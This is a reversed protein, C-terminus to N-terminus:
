KKSIYDNVKFVFKNFLIDLPNFYKTLTEQHEIKFKEKDSSIGGGQYCSVVTGIYKIVLNYEFIGRILWDFDAAIKYKENFFGVKRFCDRKIFMSQHCINDYMFFPKGVNSQHKIKKENVLFVDGYVIDTGSPWKSLINEVVSKDYFIDGSNMFIIIDGTSVKIGKNMAQYIGGDEESILRSIRSRYKKLIDMTDDSSNGDIVIYEINQYTQSLVSKITNELTKGANKCVTIVSIKM